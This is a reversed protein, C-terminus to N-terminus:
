ITTSCTHGTKNIEQFLVLAKTTSNTVSLSYETMLSVALEYLWGSCIYLTNKEDSSSEEGVLLNNSQRNQLYKNSNKRISDLVAPRGAAKFKSM